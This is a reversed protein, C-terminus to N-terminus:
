FTREGSIPAHAPVLIRERKGYRVTLRMAQRKAFNIAHSLSGMDLHFGNSQYLVIARPRGVYNVHSVIAEIGHHWLPFPMRLRDLHENDIRFKCENTEVGISFLEPSRKWLKLKSTIFVPSVRHDMPAQYWTYRHSKLWEIAEIATMPEPRFRRNPIM